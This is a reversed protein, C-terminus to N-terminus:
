LNGGKKKDFNPIIIAWLNKGFGLAKENFYRKFERGKTPGDLLKITFIANMNGDSPKDDSGKTVAEDYAIIEAPYWGPPTSDNKALDEPTLISNIAMTQNETENTINVIRSQTRPTSGHLVNWMFQGISKLDVENMTRRLLNVFNLRQIIM